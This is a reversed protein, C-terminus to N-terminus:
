QITIDSYTINTSTKNVFASYLMYDSVNITGDRTLDIGVIYDPNTSIQNVHEAYVIYDSVNITNDKSFDCAVIGVKTTSSVDAGNVVITFTRNFGYKYTITATYTGNPVNELVFMGNDDTTASIVTGDQATVSVTAGTTAYTGTADTPAALAGVYATVTYGAPAEAVYPVLTNEAKMLTTRTSDNDSVEINYTQTDDYIGKTYGPTQSNATAVTNIATALYRVYWDWSDTTYAQNGEANVNQLTGDAALTGYKPTISTDTFVVKTEGSVLENTVPDYEGVTASFSSNIHSKLAAQDYNYNYTDGTACIIERMLAGDTDVYGRHVVKSKYFEYLRIAEDITSGSATTSYTYDIKGEANKVPATYGFKYEDATSSATLGVSAYEGALLKSYFVPYTTTDFPTATAPDDATLYFEYIKSVEYEESSTTVYIFETDYSTSVLGEALKAANVMLQYTVKDFNNENLNARDESVETIIRSAASSNVSKKAEQMTYTSRDAQLMYIGRNETSGTNPIIQNVQEPVKFAWNIDKSSTASGDARRYVFQVQDYMGSLEATDGYYPASYNTTDWAKEYSPTNKVYATVGAEYATVIKNKSNLYVYRDTNFNQATVAVQTNTYYPITCLEDAYYYTVTSSTEGFENKNSGYKKMNDSAPWEPTNASDAQVYAKDGYTSGSTATKAYDQRNSLFAVNNNVNKISVPEGLTIITNKLQEVVTNYTASSSGNYDTFDSPQYTAVFNKLQAYSGELDAKEQTDRISIDLSAHGRENANSNQNDFAVNLTYDGIALEDTNFTKIWRFYQTQM